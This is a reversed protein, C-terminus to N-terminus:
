VSEQRWYGRPTLGRALLALLLLIVAAVALGLLASAVIHVPVGELPEPSGGSRHVYLHILAGIAAGIVAGASTRLVVASGGLWLGILGLVFATAAAPPAPKMVSDAAALLVAGLVLALGLGIWQKMM